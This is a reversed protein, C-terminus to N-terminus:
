AVALFARTRKKGTEQDPEDHRLKGVADGVIEKHQLRLWLPWRLPNHGYEAFAQAKSTRPTRSPYLPTWDVDSDSEGLFVPRLNMGAFLTDDMVPDTLINPVYQSSARLHEVLARRDDRLQKLSVREIINVLEPLDAWEMSNLAAGRRVRLDQRIWNRVAEKNICASCFYIEVKSTTSRRKRYKVYNRSERNFAFICFCCLRSCHQKLEDLYPPRPVFMHIRAEVDVPLFPFRPLM